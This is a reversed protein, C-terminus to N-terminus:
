NKAGSPTLNAGYHVYGKLTQPLILFFIRLKHYRDGQKLLTQINTNIALTVHLTLLMALHELLVSSNLFIFEMPHLSLFM